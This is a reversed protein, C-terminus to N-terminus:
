RRRRRWGFRLLLAEHPSRAPIGSGEDDAPTDVCSIADDDRGGHEEATADGAEELPFSSWATFGVVDTAATVRPM